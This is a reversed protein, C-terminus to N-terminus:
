LKKGAEDVKKMTDVVIEMDEDMETMLIEFEKEMVAIREKVTELKATLEKYEPMDHYAKTFSSVKEMEKRFEAETDEVEKNFRRMEEWPDKTVDLDVKPVLKGAIDSLDERVSFLLDMRTQYIECMEDIAPMYGTRVLDWKADREAENKVYQTTVKSVDDIAKHMRTLGEGLQPESEQNKLSAEIEARKQHAESDKEALFAMINELEEPSTSDNTMIKMLQDQSLEAYSAIEQSNFNQLEKNKSM